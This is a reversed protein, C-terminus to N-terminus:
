KRFKWPLNLAGTILVGYILAHVAYSVLIAIIVLGLPIRSLTLPACLFEWIAVLDIVLVPVLLIWCIVRILFGWGNEQIGRVIGCVFYLGVISGVLAPLFWDPASTHQYLSSGM